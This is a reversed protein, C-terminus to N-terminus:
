TEKSRGEMELNSPLSATEVLLVEPAKSFSLALLLETVTDRVPVEERLNKKKIM